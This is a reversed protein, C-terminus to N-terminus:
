SILNLLRKFIVENIIPLSFNFNNSNEEKQNPNFNLRLLQEKEEQKQANFYKEPSVIQINQNVSVMGSLLNKSITKEADANYAFIVIQLTPNTNAARLTIKAIHEDAFSFGSVFLVSNAQELSNSYRRMLEYFHSDLVSEKFKTKRPHIMVLRFYCDMFDKICDTRQFEEKKVIDLANKILDDINPKAQINDILLGKPVKELSSKIESILSLTGDYTLAGSNDKAEIWNISGHIKLYNFVPLQAVNQFLPSIKTIVNNFSDERFLPKLHGQFGDNFEIKIDEAATEVLNDINTTFINTTKDLITSTRRAIIANWLELFAKYSDLVKHYIEKSETNLQELTCPLMVSKFYEAFLSAEVITRINNDKIEQAKTLLTEISNLTSLFPTSLGSGFLFNIHSSQILNKLQDLQCIKM